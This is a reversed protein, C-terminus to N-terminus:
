SDDFHEWVRFNVDARCTQGRWDGGAFSEVNKSGADNLVWPFESNKCVNVSCVHQIGRLQMQMCARVCWPHPPPPPSPHLQMRQSLVCTPHWAVANAYMSTCVVSPTPAPPIPTIAHTSQACMNSAVCSCKCVHEYVGRIPHPRPPHTYNCANVSCVHQIGRLQMQMCARVCWPHPPPPPSPHLQMRQSLVCTPHWAVANAYMSTCVVSPTPAPPIPTIAHTSQACMNSAVCSCKCVHEYVGRIPHPRPPHTYNCANVSCVHQIGRLQMQMCARVCWPHPPPPPSPHLQMRQSLVCTPHWAVANAYMSTCVVSPTPAPPIPTIAHTSQACMNSAVCSCKCVHEYVGRIPHPRPPHTYNCANVSCVHQIGRLQMQMCARVCWPHPPPPPSPHLQMRQSLVCTPHWAVANAYMSTCVVSPTPAPPIPTIAHTSQACMNSAVCSCKCVHEYVGRIPHPRPPHTYNCANVSCVHQIGRLQMQMCARVCWPHPPPPPSPHLQMRQSLVCTPHWAVANAYMSTCVVSPTPAPPIPTIAHTSQACMNSAVCSCKCVHEYVGRIPHPRPPHTYNCANVSCVHQIGRLQMQMCARVCWPHPPPPPSPHLQMRQSLVCTPHWAVANAYMSTCVVSPTPAPPIPTIAHTSQACMNSAVCSCKCVHEYVGRILHPRPPHTYNCANVSCVHQIGRLQMQMCARVCWPHPPPPPSPHLQMRQSLVCTPHWAVANAYMSTCVVSPTPAPPIPTIAHTSQACMNSAICSCKCVHEYVGRIPHPRPPHTYNCANVSCVHQISHLQMQMCARVCWPHPPPPPSPHLQM